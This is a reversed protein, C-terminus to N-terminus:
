GFLRLVSQAAQSSLSLATTSLAQRTQLMLMNAGEENTDAATLNDAGETLLNMKTTSFDQQTNIVSIASSLKTAESELKELGKDMNVIDYKIDSALAWYSSEGDTPTVTARAFGTTNVGLDSAYANFGKVSISGGEFSVSLTDKTLLNYGKYGSAGALTDIQSLLGEYQKALTARDATVTSDITLSANSVVGTSTIAKDVSVAQLTIRNGSVVAKLNGEGYTGNETNANIKAALNAAIEELSLATGDTNAVNFEDVTSAGTSVATFATAGITVTAGSAITSSVTFSVQNADAALASQALGRAAEILGQIGKIGANASQITQISEAMGDKYSAIDSVRTMHGQAAFYNVPNDLPTNVKKGTALREQTRDLLNVTSQLQVLNSRMGATLSIDNIAM